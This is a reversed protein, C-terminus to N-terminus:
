IPRHTYWSIIASLMVRTIEARRGYEARALLVTRIKSPETKKNIGIDMALSTVKRPLNARSDTPALINITQAISEFLRSCAV